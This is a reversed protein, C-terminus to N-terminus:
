RLPKNYRHAIIMKIMRWPYEIFFSLPNKKIRRGSTFSIFNPDYIIKLNNQYLHIAIDFDEHVEKENLCIKNKIKEWAKKTVVMGPGWLPFTGTLSKFLYLIIKSYFPFSFPLDYFTVLGTLADIKKNKEFNKKVQYLWNKPQQTDADIRVLIDGKASNFGKNRCAIIGQKKEKLIKLPLKKIFKKVVNITRDTSNNDIIIIENAKTTQNALCKLCNAIYKEENYVPIIVSIKM